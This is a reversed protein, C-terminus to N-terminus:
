SIEKFNFLSFSGGCPTHKKEQPAFPSKEKQNCFFLFGGLVENNESCCFRKLAPKGASDILILITKYFKSCLKLRTGAKGAFHGENGAHPPLYFVGAPPLCFTSYDLM